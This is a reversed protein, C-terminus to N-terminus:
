EASLRVQVGTILADLDAISNMEVASMWKVLGGDQMAYVAPLAMEHAGFERALEDRHLFRVPIALAETFRRWTRKMGLAGYTVACLNCAYTAPSVFKHALDLM